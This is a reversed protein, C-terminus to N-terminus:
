ADLFEQYDLDPNQTIILHCNSCLIDINEEAHVGGDRIPIIHHFTLERKTGCRQCSHNNERLLLERVSKPPRHNLKKKM